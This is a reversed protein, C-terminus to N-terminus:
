SKSGDYLITKSKSGSGLQSPSKKDAMASANKMTSSYQQFDILPSDMPAYRPSANRGKVTKNGEGLNVGIPITLRPSSKVLSPHVNVLHTKEQNGYRNNGVANFPQSMAYYIPPQNSPVAKEKSKKVESVSSVTKLGSGPTRDIKINIQPSKAYALRSSTTSQKRDTLCGTEEVNQSRNTFNDQM